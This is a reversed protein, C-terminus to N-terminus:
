TTTPWPAWRPRPSRRLGYTESFMNRTHPGFLPAVRFVTLVTDPRNSFLDRALNEVAVKSRCYYNEEYARV